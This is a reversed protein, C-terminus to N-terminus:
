GMIYPINYNYKPLGPTAVFVNLIQSVPIVIKYEMKHTDIDTFILTASAAHFHKSLSFPRNEDFHIRTAGVSTIGLINEEGVENILAKFEDPSM